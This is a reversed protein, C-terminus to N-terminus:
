FKASLSVRFTRPTYFRETRRQTTSGDQRTYTVVNSAYRDDFLNFINLRMSMRIANWDWSYSLMMDAVTREPAPPTRYPNLIADRSGIPAISTRAEGSYRVGFGIGLRELLGEEFTYRTWIKATHEPSFFLSLDDFSQSMTSPESPDDFVERGLNYVWLDYPTGLSEGGFVTSAMNFGSTVYREIYSYNIIWQWNDLPTLILSFDVGQSEDSLTVNTNNTQLSANNGLDYWNYLIPVDAEAIWGM